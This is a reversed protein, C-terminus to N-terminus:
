IDQSVKQLGYKQKLADADVLLSQITGLTHKVRKNRDIAIPDQNDCRPDSTESEMFGCARGWAMLLFLQNDLM